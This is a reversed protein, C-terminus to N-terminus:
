QPKGDPGIVPLPGNETEIVLAPDPVPGLRVAARATDSLASPPPLEPRIKLKTAATETAAIDGEAAASAPETTVDAPASGAVTVPPVPLTASTGAAPLPQNAWGSWGLAAAPILVVLMWAIVLPM